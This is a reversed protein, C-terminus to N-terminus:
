SGGRLFALLDRNFFDVQEVPILHGVNAYKILKANPMSDQYTQVIMKIDLVDEEGLLLLTPAAIDALRDMVPISDLQSWSQGWHNRFNEDIMELTTELFKPPLANAPRQIGRVWTEHFTQAAASTDGQAVYNRRLIANKQALSDQYWPWGKMGPSVLILKEVREPHNLAFDVAQSGGWSLGILTTREVDCSDLLANIIIESKLDTQGNLTQGHGLDSFRAVQYGLDVFFDSQADWFSLDLYGGHLFLLMQGDGAVKWHVQHDELHMFHGDQESEQQACGTLLIMVAICRTSRWFIGPCGTM